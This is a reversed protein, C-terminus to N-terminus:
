IYVYKATTYGNNELAKRILVQGTNLTAWFLPPSPQVSRGTMPLKRFPPSAPCLKLGKIGQAGVRLKLLSELLNKTNSWVCRRLRWRSHGDLPHPRQGVTELMEVKQNREQQPSHAPLYFQQHQHYHTKFGSVLCHNKM